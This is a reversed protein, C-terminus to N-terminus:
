LRSYIRGNWNVFFEKKKKIKSNKKKSFSDKYKKGLSLLVENKEKILKKYINLIKKNNLIRKKSIFNKFKINTNLM